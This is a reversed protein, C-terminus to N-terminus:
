PNAKRKNTFMALAVGFLFLFGGGALWGMAPHLLWCGYTLCAWGALTSINAIVLKM